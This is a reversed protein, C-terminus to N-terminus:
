AARAQIRKIDAVARTMFRSFEFVDRYKGKGNRVPILQNDANVTSILLGDAETKKSTYTGLLTDGAVITVRDVDEYAVFKIGTSGDVLIGLDCILLTERSAIGANNEYIGIPTARHLLAQERLFQFEDRVDEIPRYSALRKLIRAARSQVNM